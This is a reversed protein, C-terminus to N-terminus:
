LHAAQPGPLRYGLGSPKPEIFNLFHLKSCRSQALCTSVFFLLVHDMGEHLECGLPSVCVCM